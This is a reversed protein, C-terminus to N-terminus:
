NCLYGQFCCIVKLMQEFSISFDKLKLIWLVFYLKFNVWRGHLKKVCKEADDQYKYVLFAFGPPNRFFLIQLEINVIHLLFSLCFMQQNALQSEFNHMRISVLRIVRQRWTWGKDKRGTEGSRTNECHIIRYIWCTLIM